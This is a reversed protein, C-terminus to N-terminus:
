RQSSHDFSTVIDQLLGYDPTPPRPLHMNPNTYGAPFEQQLLLDHHLNTPMAPSPSSSYTSGWVNGPSHHTHHGEYTTIVVTPDQHSREVRKKVDCSQATCRYYSRPYASNKVAKQGYKRWRYGDELHDVESRTMFAFRPERERKEGKKRRPNNAKKFEDPGEEGGEAQKEEEEEEQKRQDTKCPGSDEEGVLETSSSSTSFNPTVLTKGDSGGAPDTKSRRSGVVLDDPQSSSADFGRALLLYDMPSGHLRDSPSLVHSAMQHDFGQLGDARGGGPKQSFISFLDDYHGHLYPETREGSM